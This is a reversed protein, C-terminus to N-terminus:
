EAWDVVKLNRVREFERTNNTVLTVDLSVAHAAIQTDLPGIPTGAQELALRLTGYTEAAALDFNAVELPELFQRLAGLNKSSGSKAAGFFLEAVSISSIGLGEPAHERLRAIVQPPRQKIAYVCINTDLLYRV